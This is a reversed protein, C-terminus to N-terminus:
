VNGVEEKAVRCVEELWPRKGELKEIITRLEDSSAKYPGLLALLSEASNRKLLELGFKANGDLEAEARLAGVFDAPEGELYELWPGLHLVPSEKQAVPQLPSASSELSPGGVPPSPMSPSPPRLPEQPPIESQPLAKGQAELFARYGQADMEVLSGDPRQVVYVRSQPASLQLQGKGTLGMVLDIGKKIVDPDKLADLFSGKNDGGFREKLAELRDLEEELDSTSSGAKSKGAIAEVRRAIARQLLEPNRDLEQLTAEAVKEDIQASLDPAPNAEAMYREKIMAAFQPDEDMAKVLARQEAKKLLDEEEVSIGYKQTAAKFAWDPDEKARKLLTKLLARDLAQERPRPARPKKGKSNRHHGKFPLRM